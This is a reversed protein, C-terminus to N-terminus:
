VYTPGHREVYAVLNPRARVADAVPSRFVPALTGLLFALVTADAGSRTAGMLYPGDGIQVSLADIIGIGIAAIEDSSHRGTGQGHLNRRVTRQAIVPILHRLPWPMPDFFAARLIPWNDPEIWRTHVMVWYLGEELMREVTFATARQRADLGADLNLGHVKEIHRRIASSDAVITGGDNIYPLKGKPAARFRAFDSETRFDLGAMKLQVMTKTVFPSPDPLGFHPGFTYLTIM